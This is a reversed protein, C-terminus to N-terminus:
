TGNAPQTYITGDITTTLTGATQFNSQLVQPFLTFGGPESTLKSGTQLGSLALNEHFTLAPAIALGSASVSETGNIVHILDDDYNKYSVQISAIATQTANETVVVTAQGCFRGELTYTGAPLHPRVPFAQGVTYPTGWPVVDSVTAPTTLPRPTLTPFRAIMVRSARGGPEASVPCPLPNAGGCAPPLVLRDVWVVAASDALWAPDASANWNPDGGANIQQNLYPAATNVLYPLFFRRQGNNRIGSIHGTTPLQDTIPPVGEMGSIFDLRGSGRVQEALLWRGDPSPFMPDTYEAHSTMPRSRGTALSTAWADISGSEYSQVGLAEKGDATWGRFEGVMAVPNFALRNGPKVVYPLYQPSSNFLLTVDLLDYAQTAQNFALRGVSGFEDFGNKNQVATNWGLHVGDPNLRWERTLGGGIMGGLPKGGLEIPYIRTNQPTCRDDSVDYPGCDLVGNGVLVRHDGPFAHPPPYGFSGTDIGQENTAPVGCTLCKWPDGGPFVTGDTKVLLVQEGSYVSAPDPAAPAGAFAVGLLVEHPDGFLGVSGLGSRGSSVCGSGHPNVAATCSVPSDSPATPPVPLESISVPMHLLAAGDADHAQSARTPLSLATAVLVAALAAAAGARAFTRKRRVLVKM